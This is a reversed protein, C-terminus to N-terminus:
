WMSGTQIVVCNPDTCISYQDDPQNFQLKAGRRRSGSSQQSMVGETLLQQRTPSSNLALFCKLKVSFSLKKINRSYNFVM